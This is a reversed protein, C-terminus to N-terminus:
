DEGPSHSRAPEKRPRKGPKGLSKEVAQDSIADRYAMALQEIKRYFSMRENEPLKRWNRILAEEQTSIPTQVDELAMIYAPRKGLVKALTVVEQPKPMRFGTEYNSIRNASLLGDTKASLQGLTWEREERSKAIRRGIEKRYDM